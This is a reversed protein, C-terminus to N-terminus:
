SLYTYFFMIRAVRTIFAIVIQINYNYLEFDAYIQIFMQLFRSKKERSTLFRTARLPFHNCHPVIVLVSIPKVNLIKSLYIVSANYFQLM